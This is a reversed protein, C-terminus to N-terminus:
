DVITYTDFYVVIKEWEERSENALIHKTTKHAMDICHDTNNYNFLGQRGITYVNEFNNVCKMIPKLAERFGIAYVPYVRALKKSFFDVVEEKKIIGVKELDNVVRQQLQEDSMTYFPTDIDCTIEAILATKNEPCIFPSFSKPESVRNFCIGPEPFFYWNEPIAREKNLFVYCIRLARYKLKEAGAKVETPTSPNFLAVFDKLHITSILVSVEEIIQEKRAQNQYTVSTVRNEKTDIRVPVTNLHIEGKNKRIKESLIDCYEGFGKKPYYFYKASIDPKNKANSLTNKIFSFVDPIPIRRRALEESIIKPDGWVKWCFDRFLLDYAGKGFGQLFYDEYSINKKKSVTKKILASIYSTGCKILILPSIGTILQIPNPPFRFYTGLMYLSNTKERTLCEDKLTEKYEPMIGKVQSYFKHPGYDLTFDKYQFSYAMGGIASNKELVVVKYGAEALDAAAALGTPGAGLIVVNKKNKM